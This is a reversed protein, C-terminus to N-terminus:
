RKSGNLFIRFVTDGHYLLRFGFLTPKRVHENSLLDDDSIGENGSQPPHRFKGPNRRVGRSPQFVPAFHLHRVASAPLSNIDKRHPWRSVEM